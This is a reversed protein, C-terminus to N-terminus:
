LGKLGVKSFTIDVPRELQTIYKRIAGDRSIQALTSVFRFSSAQWGAGDWGLGVNPPQRVNALVPNFERRMRRLRM